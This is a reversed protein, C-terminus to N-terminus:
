KGSDAAFCYCLNWNRDKQERSQFSEISATAEAKTDNRVIFGNVPASGEKVKRQSTCKRVAWWDVRFARACEVIL